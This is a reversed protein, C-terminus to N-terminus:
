QQLTFNVTVTTEVDVPNGNLLTPRYVWQKVADTAAQTLEAPGDLVSVQQVTGDKGIIVALQVPGQIASAKASAPYIPVVKKLVMASQVNGGVKIRDPVATVAEIVLNIKNNGPSQANSGAMRVTLHEDFAKVAQLTKQMSELSWQDGEHVPLGALLQAAAQDSMGAIRINNVQGTPVVPQYLNGGLPASPAAQRAPPEFAIQIVQTSGALQRAFHWQLVSQLVPKRLEDPGSLVQADSVAGEGDLKLQLSVTGKVGAQIASQPFIVATRHLITAGNLMVSVGASDDVQPAAALWCAAALIPILVRSM